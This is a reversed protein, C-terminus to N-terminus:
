NKFAAFDDAATTIAERKDKESVISPKGESVSILAKVEKKQEKELLKEAKAPTLLKLEYPDIGSDKLFRTAAIEDSWSRARRGHVLKYGKVPEGIALTNFVRAEIAKIWTSMLKLKPYIKEVDDISLADVQDPQFDAFEAFDKQATKLVEQALAPCIDKARCWQCQKDGPKLPANDSLAMNVTPKLVDEAWALLEKPTTEWIKIQEGDRSRPQVIGMNITEYTELMAGAAGLAYAMLQPNEEAAVTVGQGHKYDRIYLTKFPLSLSYDVTGWVEPAGFIDLNVKGEIQEEKSKSPIGRLEKIHQEYVKVADIMGKDVTIEYEDEKIVTGIKPYRKGNLKNEGVEHAVTGEAAAFSTTDEIGECLNVRGPCLIIAAISSPGVPSHGNDVQQGNM